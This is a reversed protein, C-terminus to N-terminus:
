KRPQTPISSASAARRERLAGLPTSRSESMEKCSRRTVSGSLGRRDPVRKLKSAWCPDHDKLEGNCRRANGNSRCRRLDTRRHWNVRCACRHEKWPRPNPGLVLPSRCCQTCHFFCTLSDSKSGGWPCTTLGLVISPGPALSFAESQGLANPQAAPSLWADSQSDLSKSSSSPLTIKNGRGAAPAKFFRTAVLGCGVRL